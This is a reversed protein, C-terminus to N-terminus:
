KIEANRHLWALKGGCHQSCTRQTLRRPVYPGECVVCHKISKGGNRVFAELPYSPHQAHHCYPCLAVGNSVEHELEPHKEFPKVHHAQLNEMVGCRVCKRDRLLVAVVWKRHEKKNRKSPAKELKKMSLGRCENSCYQRVRGVRRQEAFAKGCCKCVFPKSKLLSQKDATRKKGACQVSCCAGRGAEIEDLRTVFGKGCVVCEKEVPPRGSNKGNHRGLCQKSCFVGNGAKVQSAIAEFAKGCEKCARSVRPVRVGYAGRPKGAAALARCKRSCYKGRGITLKHPRVEFKAKCQQCSVEVM